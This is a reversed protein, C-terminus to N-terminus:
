CCCRRHAAAVGESGRDAHAVLDLICDVYPLVKPFQKVSLVDVVLRGALLHLPLHKVVVATSMISTALLVLEPGHVRIAEEASSCYQVGMSAALESYDTRSSTVVKHKHAVFKKALFQGFTGFGVIHITLRKAEQRRMEAKDLLQHARSVTMQAAAVADEAAQLSTQGTGLCQGRLDAIAAGVKARVFLKMGVEKLHEDGVGSDVVDQVSNAGQERFVAEFEAAGLSGLWTGLPLSGADAAHDDTRPRKQSMKRRQALGAAWVGAVAVRALQEVVVVVAAVTARRCATPRLPECRFESSGQRRAIM